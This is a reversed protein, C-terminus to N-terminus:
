RELETSPTSHDDDSAVLPSTGARRTASLISPKPPSIASTNLENSSNSLSSMQHPPSRAGDIRSQILNGFKQLSTNSRFYHCSFPLSNFLTHIILLCLLLDNM